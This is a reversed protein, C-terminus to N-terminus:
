QQYLVQFVATGSLLDLTLSQCGAKHSQTQLLSLILLAITFITIINSIIERATCACSSGSDSEQSFIGSSSRSFISAASRASFQSFSESCYPTSSELHSFFQLNSPPM